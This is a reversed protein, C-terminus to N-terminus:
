RRTGYVGRHIIVKLKHLGYFFGAGL